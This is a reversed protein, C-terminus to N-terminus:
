DGEVMGGEVVIEGTTNPILDRNVLSERSNLDGKVVNIETKQMAWNSVGIVDLHTYSLNPIQFNEKTSM